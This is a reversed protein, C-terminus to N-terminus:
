RRHRCGVHYMAEGLLPGKRGTNSACVRWGIASFGGYALDARKQRLSRGSILIETGTLTPPRSGPFRQCTGLSSAPALTIPCTVVTPLRAGDVPAEPSPKSRAESKDQWLPFSCLYQHGTGGSAKASIQEWLCCSQHLQGVGLHLGFFGQPTLSPCVCFSM